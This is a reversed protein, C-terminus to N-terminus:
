PGFPSVLEEYCTSLDGCNEVTCCTTGFGVNACSFGPANNSLACVDSPNVIVFEDPLETIANDNLGLVELSPLAAIESPVATLANGTLNMTEVLTLLGIETPISSIFNDALCAYELSPGLEGVSPPPAGTLGAGCAAIRTPLLVGDYEEFAACTIGAQEICYPTNALDNWPPLTPLLPSLAVFEQLATCACPSEGFASRDACEASVLTGAPCISDVTCVTDAYSCTPPTPPPNCPTTFEMACEGSSPDFTALGERDDKDIRFKLKTEKNKKNFELKALEAEVPGTSGQGAFAVTAVPGDDPYSKSYRKYFTNANIGYPLESEKDVVITAAKFLLFKGNNKVKCTDSM